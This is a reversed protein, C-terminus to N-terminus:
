CVDWGSPDAPPVPYWWFFVLLQSFLVAFCRNLLPVGRHWGVVAPRPVRDGQHPGALRLEGAQTGPLGAWWSKGLCVKLGAPWRLAWSLGPVGRGSAVVAALDGRPRERGATGWPLAPAAELGSSLECGFGPSLACWPEGPWRLKLLPPFVETGYAVLFRPAMCAPWPRILSMNEGLPALTFGMSSRCEGARWGEAGRAPSPRASGVWSMVGTAPAPRFGLVSESQQARLCSRARCPLLVSCDTGPGQKESLCLHESSACLAPSPLSQWACCGKPVGEERCACTVLNSILRGILPLVQHAWSFGLDPLVKKGLFAMPPLRCFCAHSVPWLCIM